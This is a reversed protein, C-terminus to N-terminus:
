ASDAFLRSAASMRQSQECIYRTATQRKLWKLGGALMIMAPAAALDAIRSASKAAADVTESVM